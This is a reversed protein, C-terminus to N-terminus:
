LLLRHSSPEVCNAEAEAYNGQCVSDNRIPLLGLELSQDLAYYGIHFAFQAVNFIVDCERMAM